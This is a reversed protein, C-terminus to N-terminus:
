GVFTEGGVELNIRAEVRIPGPFLGCKSTQNLISRYASMPTPPLVERVLEVALMSETGLASPAM